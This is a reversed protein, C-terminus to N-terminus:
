LIQYIYQVLLFIPLKIYISFRKVCSFKININLPAPIDSINAVNATKKPIIKPVNPAAEFNDLCAGKLHIPFIYTSTM